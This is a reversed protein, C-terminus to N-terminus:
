KSKFILIANDYCIVARTNYRKITNETMVLARYHGTGLAYTYTAMDHHLM